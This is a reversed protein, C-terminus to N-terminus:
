CLNTSHEVLSIDKNDFDGTQRIEYTMQREFINVKSINKIFRLFNHTILENNDVFTMIPMIIKTVM